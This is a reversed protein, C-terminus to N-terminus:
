FEFATERRIPQKGFFLSKASFFATKGIVRIRVSKRDIFRVIHIM